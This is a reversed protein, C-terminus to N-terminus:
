ARFDSKMNKPPEVPSPAYGPGNLGEAEQAALYKEIEHLNCELTCRAVEAAALYIKHQNQLAEVTAKARLHLTEPFHDALASLPVNELHLARSLTEKKQELGRFTLSLAQEQRMATDLATLDDKQVAATKQNALTSLTELNSRLSDLLELYTIYQEHM